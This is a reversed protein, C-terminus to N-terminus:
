GSRRGGASPVAAPQNQLIRFGGAFNRRPRALFQSHKEREVLFLAPTLTFVVIMKQIQVGAM